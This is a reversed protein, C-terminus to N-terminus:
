ELDLGRDTGLCPFPSDPSPSVQGLRHGYTFALLRWCAVSPTCCCAVFVGFCSIDYFAFLCWAFAFLCCVCSLFSLVFPLASLVTGGELTFFIPPGPRPRETELFWAHEKNWKKVAKQISSKAPISGDTKVVVDRIESWSSGEDRMNYALAKNTEDIYAVVSMAPRLSALLCDCACVSAKQQGQARSSVHGSLFRAASM